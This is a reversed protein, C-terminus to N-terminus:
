ATPASLKKRGYTNAGAALVVGDARLGLTHSPGTSRAAHANGAAVAIIDSWSDTNCEGSTNSGVALVTGDTRRLASHRAGVISSM